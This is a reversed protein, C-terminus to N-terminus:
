FEFYQMTVNINCNLGTVLSINPFLNDILKNDINNTDFMENLKIITNITDDCARKYLDIFSATSTKTKDWPLYWKQNNLNLIPNINDLTNHFSLEKLKVTNKKTIKDILSYALLKYSYPDYNIHKYFLYMHNLSKQYYKALDQYKYTEYLTNNILNKLTPSITKIPFLFKHPKFKYYPIPERQSIFYLDILYEYKQHITNYKYTSSDKKDFLGSKYYIYPHTYLDLYYHCIYGYLYTIIEKNNTLNNNIIYKINNKFFLNTKKTHIIEQINSIEQAKKGIFFNYFMFPDSGQSFMKLYNLDMKQQHKSPLKNFVDIGFYAHTISSPM